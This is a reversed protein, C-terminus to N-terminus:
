SQTSTGMEARKLGSRRFCPGKLLAVEAVLEVGDGASVVPLLPIPLQGCQELAQEPL